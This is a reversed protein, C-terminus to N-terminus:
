GEKYKFGLFRIIFAKIKERRINKPERKADPFNLSLLDLGFSSCQKIGLRTTSFPALLYRLRLPNLMVRGLVLVGVLNTFLDLNSKPKPVDGHITSM